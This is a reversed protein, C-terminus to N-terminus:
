KRICDRYNKQKQKLLKGLLHITFLIIKRSFNHFVYKLVFFHTSMDRSDRQFPQSSSSLVNVISDYLDDIDEVHSHVQCNADICKVGDPIIISDFGKETLHEYYELASDPLKDWAVNQKVDNNSDDIYPTIVNINITGSVPHHDSVVCDYNIKIDSICHSADSSCLIHDLWSTTGWSSSVYTYTDDPLTDKDIIKFNNDACFKVLIDGFVSNRSLNANFDGVITIYTSNINEVVVNLKELCDIYDDRNEDCEYPLYVNLLYYEKRSISDSLKLCCLWDYEYEIISVNSELHKKWIFGVGGHPRGRIFRLSADVPSVGYGYCDDRVCNLTSCEQM